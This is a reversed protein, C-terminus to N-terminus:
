DESAKELGCQCRNSKGRHARLGKLVGIFVETNGKYVGTEEVNHSGGLVM